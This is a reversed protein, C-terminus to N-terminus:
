GRDIVIKWSKTLGVHKFQQRKSEVPEAEDTVVISNFAEGQGPEVTFVGPSVQTFPSPLTITIKQAGGELIIPEAM